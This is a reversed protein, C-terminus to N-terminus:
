ASQQMQRLQEVTDAAGMADALDIARRGELDTANIDAGAELLRDVMDCRNFMAAFMLPTKGGPPCGNVNAGHELLLNVLVM